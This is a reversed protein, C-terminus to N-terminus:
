AGARDAARLLEALVDGPKKGRARAIRELRVLDEGEVSM